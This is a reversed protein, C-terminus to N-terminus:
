PISERKNGRIQKTKQHLNIVRQTINKTTSATGPSGGSAEKQVNLDKRVTALSIRSGAIPKGDSLSSSVNSSNRSQVRQQKM